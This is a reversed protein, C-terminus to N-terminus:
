DRKLALVLMSPTIGVKGFDYLDIAEVNIGAKALQSLATRYRLNAIVRREGITIVGAGLEEGIELTITKFGAFATEDVRHPALVITDESVANAVSRLTRTEPALAVELVRLGHARAISAFGARGLANSSKGSGIFATKGALLVDSGDLLGPAVVHGAIPIDIEGFQHEIRTSETRRRMASPRVIAAGDELVVAGDAAACAFPDDSQPELVTTKVGFYQLTKVLSAHQELARVYVSGPEGILPAASEISPSPKILLAARLAGAASAVLRPGFHPHEKTM